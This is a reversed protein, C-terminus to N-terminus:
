TRTQTLWPTSALRMWSEINLYTQQETVDYVIIIGLAGKYYVKSLSKYREQGATDWFTVKVKTNQVNLVKNLFEVGVTAKFAEIFEGQVFRLSINTKGTASDGSHCCM